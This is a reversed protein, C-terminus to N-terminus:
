PPWPTARWPSRTRVNASSVPGTRLARASPCAGGPPSTEIPGLLASGAPSMDGAGRYARWCVCLPSVRM